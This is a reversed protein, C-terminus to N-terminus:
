SLETKLEVREALPPGVSQYKWEMGGRIEEKQGPKLKVETDSARASLTPIGRYALEPYTPTTPLDLEHETKRTLTKRTSLMKGMMAQAVTPHCFYKCDHTVNSERSVKHAM